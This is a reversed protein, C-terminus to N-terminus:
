ALYREIGAQLDAKLDDIDEFGAHVRFLQHDSQWQTATRSSSLDMPVLLSEFGGWSFGMAFLSLNDMMKELSQESRKELEFSFLGSSGSFDRRWIDHGPCNELAPHLVRKVAPHQNLWHALELAQKQHQQMRVQLTRLGRLGLFVDDPGACYGHLYRCKHVSPYHEEDAVVVGLMADSHGSIYKTAATVSINVGHQLPNYFCPSGWSNDFCTTIGHKKAVAVIAPVDQIEFSISGPSEMYICTTNARILKEINGGIMPDYYTVEVGNLPLREDCFQRAPGYCSDVMLLHDGAKVQSLISVVIAAKGSPLAVGGFGGELEAMTNEFAFTTPTGMRGYILVDKGDYNAVATKLESLTDFVITSVHHVPVNVAGHQEAPNRGSHVIKTPLKFDKKAM